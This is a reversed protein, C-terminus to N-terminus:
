KVNDPEEKNADTCVKIDIVGRPLAVNTRRDNLYNGTSQFPSQEDEADSSETDVDQEKNQQRKRQKRKKSKKKAKEDVSELDAWM